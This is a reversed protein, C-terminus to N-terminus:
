ILFRLDVPPADPQPMERLEREFQSADESHAVRLRRVFVDCKTGQDTIGLWRRMEMGDVTVIQDTSEITIKM